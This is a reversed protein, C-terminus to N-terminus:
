RARCSSGVLMITITITLIITITILMTTIIAIITIIPITIITIIIMVPVGLRRVLMVGVSVAQSVSEPFNGMPRPIGGRIILITSSDSGRFDMITTPLNAMYM